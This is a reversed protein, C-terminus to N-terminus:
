GHFVADLRCSWRPTNGKSLPLVKSVNGPRLSEYAFIPTTQFKRKPGFYRGNARERQPARSRQRRAEAQAIRNEKHARDGQPHLERHVRRGRSERCVPSFAESFEKEFAACVALVDATSQLLWRPSLTRKVHFQGGYLMDLELVFRPMRSLGDAVLDQKAQEILKRGHPQLGVFDEALKQTGPEMLTIKKSAEYVHMIDMTSSGFACFVPSFNFIVAKHVDAKYGEVHTAGAGGGVFLVFDEPSYGRLHVEKM